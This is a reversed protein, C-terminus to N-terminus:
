RSIASCLTLRKSPFLTSAMTVSQAAQPQFQLCVPFSQARPITHGFFGLRERCLNPVDRLEQRDSQPVVDLETCDGLNHAEVVWAMEAVSLLENRGLRSRSRRIGPRVESVNGIIALTASRGADVVNGVPFSGHLDQLGLNGRYSLVPASLTIVELGPQKM